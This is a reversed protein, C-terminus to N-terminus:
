RGARLRERRRLDARALWQVATKQEGSFVGPACTQHVGVFRHGAADAFGFSQQLPGV